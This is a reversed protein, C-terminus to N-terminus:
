SASLGNAIAQALPPFVNMRAVQAPAFWSADVVERQDIRLHPRQGVSLNFIQVHDRKGEWDHTVDVALQLQEPRVFVAVEEALERLAADRGTENAHLYGGPASYYPLYSNRVLLVEGESWIAVLAGHTVPHRVKWYTRM